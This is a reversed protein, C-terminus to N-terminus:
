IDYIPIKSVNPFSQSKLTITLKQKCNRLANHKFLEERQFRTTEEELDDLNEQYKM